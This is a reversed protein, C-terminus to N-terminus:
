PSLSSGARPQATAKSTAATTANAISTCTPTGLSLGYTGFAACIAGVSGAIGIGATFFEFVLLSLGIAFLLYAVPVSAVTHMLQGILGLKFFRATAADLVIQGSDDLTEVTTNLVKGEITLGDLAYLMNRVVPVGEDQKAYKLAGRERAETFGLSSTRLTADADGFSVENGNVALLKGTFGIRSGPAMASVDAVTLLQASLGYARAGTPGVWVAVPIKADAVNKLLEAFREPSVIAGRSNVQLVVAQAGNTTSRELATEIEDVVVHDILGSVAVVDVPALDAASEASASQSGPLVGCMIGLVLLAWRAASPLRRM